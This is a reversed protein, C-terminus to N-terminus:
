SALARLLFARLSAEIDDSTASNAGPRLWGTSTLLPLDAVEPNFTRYWVALLDDREASVLRLEYPGGAAAYAQRAKAFSSSRGMKLLLYEAPLANIPKPAASRNGQPREFQMLKESYAGRSVVSQVQPITWAARLATASSSDVVITAPLRDPRRMPAAAVDARERAIELEKAWRAYAWHGFPLLACILLAVTWAKRRAVVLWIALVLMFNLALTPLIVSTFQLLASLWSPQLEKPLNLHFVLLTLV